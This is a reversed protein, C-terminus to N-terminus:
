GHSHYKTFYPVIYETLYEPLLGVDTASSTWEFTVLTEKPSEIFYVDVKQVGICYGMM